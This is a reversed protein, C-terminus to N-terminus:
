KKDWLTNLSAQFNQCQLLSSQHWWWVISLTHQARHIYICWAYIHNLAGASYQNYENVNYYLHWLPGNAYVVPMCSQGESIHCQTAISQCLCGNCLYRQCPCEPWVVWADCKRPKWTFAIAIVCCLQIHNSTMQKLNNPIVYLIMKVWGM